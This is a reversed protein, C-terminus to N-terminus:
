DSPRQDGPGSAGGEPGGAAPGAGGEHIGAGHKIEGVLRKLDAVERALVEVEAGRFMFELIARAAGLRVTESKANDVLDQLRSAALTGVAALRGVAARVMEARAEDVRARFAPDKLRREVTREHVGAHRAASAVNGGAALATVIAGDCNKKGSGAV